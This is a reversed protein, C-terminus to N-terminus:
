DAFKAKGFPTSRRVATKRLVEPSRNLLARKTARVKELLELCRERMGGAGNSAAPLGALVDVLGYEARDLQELSTVMTPM